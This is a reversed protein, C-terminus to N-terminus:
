RNLKRGALGLVLAAAELNGAVAKEIVLELIAPTAVAVLEDLSTTKPPRGLPNALNGVPFKHRPKPKTEM